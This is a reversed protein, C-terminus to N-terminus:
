TNPPTVVIFRDDFINDLVPKVQKEWNLGGNGCGPRPLTITKLHWHNAIEVLKEASQKILAIDSKDKWHHKTPFSVLYPYCEVIIGPVNGYKKVYEGWTRPLGPFNLKATLAVGAGMVLENKNNLIGNTTICIADTPYTFLDGTIYRMKYEM